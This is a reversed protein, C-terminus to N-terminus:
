IAQLCAQRFIKSSCMLIFQQACTDSAHSSRRVRLCLCPQKRENPLIAALALVCVGRSWLRTHKQTQRMYVRVTQATNSEEREGRYICTQESQTHTHSGANISWGEGDCERKKKKWVIIGSCKDDVCTELMFISFLTKIRYKFNFFLKFMKKKNNNPLERAKKRKKNLMLWLRASYIIYQTDLPHKNWWRVSLRIM